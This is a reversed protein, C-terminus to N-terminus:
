RNYNHIELVYAYKGPLKEPLMVQLNDGAAKWKLMGRQGLLYVKIHPRPFIGEITMTRAKPTGLVIVNIHGQYTFRLDDGEVTKGTAREWPM